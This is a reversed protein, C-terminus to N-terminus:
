NLSRKCFEEFGRSRIAAQQCAALFPCASCSLLVPAGPTLGPIPVVGVTYFTGVGPLTVPKVTGEGKPLAPVAASGRDPHPGKAGACAADLAKQMVPAPPSGLLGLFYKLLAM